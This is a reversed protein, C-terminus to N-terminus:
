GINVQELAIRGARNGAVEGAAEAEAATAGSALADSMAKSRAERQIQTVDITIINGEPTERTTSELDVDAVQTLGRGGVYDNFAIEGNKLEDPVKGGLSALYFHTPEATKDNNLGNSSMASKLEASYIEPNFDPDVIQGNAYVVVDAAVGFNHWSDGPPMDDYGGKDLKAKFTDAISARKATESAGGAYGVARGVSEINALDTGSGQKSLFYQVAIRSAITPDNALDPNQVLDVGVKKSYVGYNYKGTLQILGRGRYKFGEEPSNGLRGGYLLNGVAVPGRDKLAQAEEISNFRVKNGGENGPGFFRFLTQATYGALNESRARFGSEAQIQALINAVADPDTIGARQLENVAEVQSPTLGGKINASGYPARYGESINVDFGPNNKLFQKIGNAFNERCVPHLCNAKAAINKANKSPVFESAVYQKGEPFPNAISPINSPTSQNERAIGSPTQTSNALAAKNAAGPGLGYAQSIPVRGSLLIDNLVDPTPYKPVTRIVQEAQENLIDEATTAPNNFIDEYEKIIIETINELTKSPEAQLAKQPFEVFTEGIKIINPIDNCVDLPTNLPDRIFQELNDVIRDAAPGLEQYAQRLELITALAGAPDALAAQSVINLAEQQLLSILLDPSKLQDIIIEVQNITDVVSNYFNRGVMIQQQVFTQIQKIQTFIGDQGCALDTVVDGVSSALEGAARAQTIAGELDTPSIPIAAAATNVATSAADVAATVYSSTATDIATTVASIEDAIDLNEIVSVFDFAM